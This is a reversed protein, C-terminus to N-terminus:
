PELLVPKAGLPVSHNTISHTAGTLDEYHGFSADVNASATGCSGHSCSQSADWKAVATVGNRTVTCSWISGSSVILLGAVDAGVIWAATRTFGDGAPEGQLAYGGKSDWQYWCFRGIGVGARLLYARSVYAEQQDPDTDQGQLYGAEDDWFPLNTLNHSALVPEAQGYVTLFSEPDENTSGQGRGHFNVIDFYSAGGAALYATFWTAATPGHFSPSLIQVNPDVGRITSYVDKMMRVFQASTGSFFNASDPENWGEYYAIKGRYRTALATLFDTFSKDTGTGDSAVDKPALCSYTNYNACSPAPMPQTTAWDPTAGITYIVDMGAAEARSVWTDLKTWTYCPNDPDTASHGASQAADCRRSRRGTRAATGSGALDERAGDRRFSSPPWASSSSNMGIGFLSAQVGSTAGGGSGTSSSSSASEVCSATSSASAGGGGSAAAGGSTRERDSASAGGSGTTASTSTTEGTTSTTTSMTTSTAPGTTSGAGGSEQRRLARPRRRREAPTAATPRTRRTAAPAASRSPVASCRSSCRLSVNSTCELRWSEGEDCGVHRSSDARFYASYVRKDGHNHASRDLNISGHVVRTLAQPPAAPQLRTSGRSSRADLCASSGRRRRRTAARRRSRRRSAGGSSPRSSTKCATATEACLPASAPAPAGSPEHLLHAPEVRGFGALLCAREVTHKLERVNGPWAYARLAAEADTSFTPAARGAKEAARRAFGRALELIEAPRARLPPLSLRIGDLRFLLDSRFTGARVAAALDRNTAAIWRVDLRRPKLSGLRQVECSDLVGLLKAQTTLPVEGIEDLFVTGGDASELLGPKAQAAGSFAGKEFGFLEGELLAEPFAACHIRVFPASARPSARHAREAILTKGVGTEGLVLIPIDSPAALALLNEVAQMPSADRAASVSAPADSVGERRPDRVVIMASGLELVDGADFAQAVGSPVARGRVRVGNVSGLDRVTLPDGATIEAHERSMSPHDVVVACRKSRGVVAAAGRRIWASSAGGEWVALVRVYGERSDGLAEPRTADDHGPREAPM